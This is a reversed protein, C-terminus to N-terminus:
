NRFVNKKVFRGNVFSPEKELFFSSVRYINDVHNKRASSLLLFSCSAYCLQRQTLLGTLWTIVLIQNVYNKPPCIMAKNALDDGDLGM